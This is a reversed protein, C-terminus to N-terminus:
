QMCKACIGLWCQDGDGRHCGCDDMVPLPVGETSIPTGAKEPEGLRTVLNAAEDKSFAQLVKDTLIDLPKGIKSGWQPDRPSLEFVELTMFALFDSIFGKQLATLEFHNAMYFAVHVRWLGLKEQATAERFVVKRQLSTLPTLDEYKQLIAVDEKTGGINGFIEFGERGPFAAKIRPALTIIEPQVDEPHGYTDIKIISLSDDILNKQETTLDPRKVLQFALHFRMLLAKEEASVNGRMFKQKEPMPLASIDVYRQIIGAAAPKQSAESNVATSKQSYSSATLVSFVLMLM